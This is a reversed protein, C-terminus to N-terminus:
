RTATHLATWGNSDLMNILEPKHDLLLKAISAKKAYHLATQDSSNVVHILEPDKALLLAVTSEHGGTVAIILVIRSRVNKSLSTQPDRSLVVNLVEDYGCRAADEISILCALHRPNSGGPKHSRPTSGLPYRHFQRCWRLM